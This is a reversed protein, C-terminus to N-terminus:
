KKETRIFFDFHPSYLGDPGLIKPGPGPDSSQIKTSGSGVRVRDIFEQVRVRVGFKSGITWDKQFRSRFQVQATRPSNRLECKGDVIM